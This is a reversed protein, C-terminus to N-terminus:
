GDLVRAYMRVLAPGVVQVSYRGAFSQAATGLQKRRDADALLSAIAAGFAAPTGEVVVGAGAQELEPAVNVARSIVTACGAALAEAVAIGFNETHSPLAWVDAAALAALKERGTLLGPLYFADAVGLQAALSRLSPAISEDDPGVIALAADRTSARAIAFACVLTELNKKAAIRGLNLVVPGAHGALHRDRFEQGPPLEDPSPLRLAPPVVFHPVRTVDAVLRSEEETTLHLAAARDLLRRQWLMHMVAKRARGHSRLYPDLSGHPSVVYPTGAEWAARGAVLQPYLFLSHVHVVDYHRVERELARGLAPAYALRYPRRSPFLHLDLRDAGEPLDGSNVPRRGGAAATSELDTTFVTSEVGHEALALATDVVFTATGGTRAALGPIVHLIRM